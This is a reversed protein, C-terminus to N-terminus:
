DLETEGLAQYVAPAEELMREGFPRQSSPLACGGELGKGVGVGRGAQDRNLGKLIM